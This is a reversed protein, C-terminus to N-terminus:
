ANASANSVTELYEKYLDELIGPSGVIVQNFEWRQLLGFSALLVILTRCSEFSMVQTFIRQLSHQDFRPKGNASEHLVYNIQAPSFIARKIRQASLGGVTYGRTCTQLLATMDENHRELFGQLGDPVEIGGFKLVYFFEAIQAAAESRLLKRHERELDAPSALGAQKAAHEEIANFFTARAQRLAALCAIGKGDM